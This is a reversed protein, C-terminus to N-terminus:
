GESLSPRLGMVVFNAGLTPGIAPPLCVVDDTVLLDAPQHGVVFDYSFHNRKVFSCCCIYLKQLAASLGVGATHQVMVLAVFTIWCHVVGDCACLLGYMASLPEAWSVDPSTPQSASALIPEQRPFDVRLSHPVWDDRDWFGPVWHYLHSPSLPVSVTCHVNTTGPACFKLISLADFKVLLAYHVSSQKLAQAM